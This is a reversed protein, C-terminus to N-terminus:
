VTLKYGGLKLVRRRKSDSTGVVCVWVCLRAGDRTGLRLSHWSATWQSSRRYDTGFRPEQRVPATRAPPQWPTERDFATERKQARTQGRARQPENTNRRCLKKRRHSQGEKGHYSTTVYQHSENHKQIIESTRTVMQKQDFKQNNTIKRGNRQNPIVRKLSCLKGHRKNVKHGRNKTKQKALKIQSM